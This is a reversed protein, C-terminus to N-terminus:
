DLLPTTAHTDEIFILSDFLKPFQLHYIDREEEKAYGILRTAGIIKDTKLEQNLAYFDLYFANGNLALVNEWLPIEISQMKVQKLKDNYFHDGNIFKNEIYSYSGNLTTLGIAHYDNGFERKLDRGMIGIENDAIVEKSIHANHAWVIIKNSKNKALYSVRDAMIEDRSQFPKKNKINVYNIYTNKGNFLIEKLPETLVNTQNLHKEIAVINDYIDAGLKYQRKSSVSAEKLVNSKLKKILKKLKKDNEPKSNSYLLDYFAWFSDDCGKFKVNYNTRNGKYWQLFSKMEKTQYISFLRKSILSDIPSKSLENNLLEIDDYASELVVLNFGKEAILRKTIIERLRYFESTGHTSEGISVIRKTALKELLPNLSAILNADTSLDIPKSAKQISTKLEEDNYDKLYVKPTEKLTQIDKGDITIKFDDFWATGTGGLIGAVYIANADRSLPLKITYAKWDNTGEIKLKQMSEFALSKKANLGDIRMLLGVFGKVNEYKIRGTLSITDGTYNAPIRYTICAFKDKQDSVVKGVYNDGELKEGTVHDGDLNRYSGWEFWGKPMVKKESDFDDFNLNYKKQAQMNAHFVLVVLGFLYTKINHMVRANKLITIM